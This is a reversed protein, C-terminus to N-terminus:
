TPGQRCDKGYNELPGGLADAKRSSVEGSGPIETVGNLSRMCLLWEPTSDAKAHRHHTRRM